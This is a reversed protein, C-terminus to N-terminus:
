FYLDVFIPLHDSFGGYWKNKGYTRSPYKEGNPNTYLLWDKKFVNYDKIQIGSKSNFFNNSVIIHDIFDWNGQYNYSGLNELKETDMLNLFDDKVLIDQLSENSPYDNFDGMMIINKHKEINQDIYKRLVNATFIRKHKTKEVGGWRSPWHNVFIHLIERDIKLQVYVIDRTPRNALPNKVEIFEYKILTFNEDFLLACDIGREDPSNKHIITYTHNKFFPTKLLDKIVSENEVECLGILNPKRNENINYFVKELQFLKQNYKKTNWAKKSEPLFEDDKTVPNNITDFLNEVNYFMTFIEKKSQGSLLIPFIFIFLYKKM